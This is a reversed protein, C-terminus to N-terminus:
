LSPGISMDQRPSCSATMSAAGTPSRSRRLSPRCSQPRRCRAPPGQTRPAIESREEGLDIGVHESRRGLYVRAEDAQRELAARELPYLESLLHQLRERPESM